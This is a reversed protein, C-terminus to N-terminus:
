VAPIAPRCSFNVNMSCNLNSYFYSTLRLILNNYNLASIDSLLTIIIIIIIICRMHLTFVLTIGTIIPAVPVMEFNNLFYTLLM